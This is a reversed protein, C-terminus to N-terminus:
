HDAGKVGVKYVTADAFIQPEREGYASSDDLRRLFDFEEQQYKASQPYNRYHVLYHAGAKKALRDVDDWSRAGHAAHPLRPLRMVPNPLWYALEAGRNSLLTEEPTVHQRLWVIVDSSGAAEVYTDQPFELLRLTLLSQFALWVGVALWALGVRRRNVQGGRLSLATLLLVTWPVPTLVYRYELDMGNAATAAITIGYTCLIMLAVIAPVVLARGDRGDGHTPASLIKRAAIVALTGLALFQAPVALFELAGWLERGGITFSVGAKISPLLTSWFIDAGPWPQGPTGAIMWNRFFITGIVAGSVSGALLIRRVTVRLNRGRSFLLAVLCVQLANALGIYRFAFAVAAASSACLWWVQERDDPGLAAQAACLSAITAAAVYPLESGIIPVWALMPFTAAATAMSAAAPPVIFRALLYFGAAVIMLALVGIVRGAHYASMGSAHLGAIALSLGPPWMSSPTPLRATEYVPDWYAWRHVLGKGDVVNAAMDLYTVSDPGVGVHSWLAAGGAIASLM